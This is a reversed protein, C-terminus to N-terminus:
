KVLHRREMVALQMLEEWSELHRLSVEVRDRSFIVEERARAATLKRQKWQGLIWEAKM